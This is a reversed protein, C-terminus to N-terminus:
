YAGCASRCSFLSNGSGRSANICDLVCQHAGHGRMKEGPKMQAKAETEVIEKELKVAQATLSDSQLQAKLAQTRLEQAQVEKPSLEASTAHGAAMGFALAAFLLTLMKKM